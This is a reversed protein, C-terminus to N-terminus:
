YDHKETKDGILVATYTTKKRDERKAGKEFPHSPVQM